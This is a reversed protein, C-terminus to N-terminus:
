ALCILVFPDTIHNFSCLREHASPHIQLYHCQYFITRALQHGGSASGTTLVLHFNILFSTFGFLSLLLSDNLVISFGMCPAMYLSGNSSFKNLWDYDFGVIFFVM